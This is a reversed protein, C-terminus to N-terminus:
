KRAPKRFFKRGSVIRKMVHPKVKARTEEVVMQTPDDDIEPPSFDDDDPDQAIRDEEIAQLIEEVEGFKSMGEETLMHLIRRGKKTTFLLTLLVGAVLGLLFGNFPSHKHEM